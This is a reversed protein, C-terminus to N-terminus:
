LGEEEGASTDWRSKHRFKRLAAACEARNFRVVAGRKYFPLTGDVMFNAVTRTSVNLWIRMEERTMWEQSESETAGEVASQQRRGQSRNLKAVGRLNRKM